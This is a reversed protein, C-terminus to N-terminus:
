IFINDVMEGYLNYLLHRVSQLQNRQQEKHIQINNTCYIVSLKNLFYKHM